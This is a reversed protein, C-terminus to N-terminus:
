WLPTRPRHEARAVDGKMLKSKLKTRMTEAGDVSMCVLRTGGSPLRELTSIGIKESQCRTVIDAEDMSLFLVRSM